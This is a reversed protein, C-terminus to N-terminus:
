VAHLASWDPQNQLWGAVRNVAQESYTRGLFVTQYRDGPGRSFTVIVTGDPQAETAVVIPEPATPTM